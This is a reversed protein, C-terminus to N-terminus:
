NKSKKKTKANKKPKTEIIVVDGDKHIPVKLDVVPNLDLEKPQPNHIQDVLLDFLDGLDTLSSKTLEQLKEVTLNSEIDKFNYGDDVVENNAVHTPRLKKIGLLNAIQMRTPLPTQLWKTYSM